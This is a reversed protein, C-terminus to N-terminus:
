GGCTARYADLDRHKRIANFGHRAARDCFQARELRYEIAMVAKGARVFADYPKCEDYYFCSEVLAWDFYDVLVPVQPGDNKLGVSLGHRHAANALWINFRLQDQGTLPFGTDNQYGNVNDFEASDFGKAKCRDLRANILPKLVRLRRIDLWREGPWGSLSKGLVRKPVKDADPRWNEWSGASIYCVVMTGQQHFEEVTAASTDFMDVEFMDVELSTDIEGNFQIQWDTVPAPTWCGDCPVPAVRAATATEGASAPPPEAAVPLMTSPISALILVLLVVFRKMGLM